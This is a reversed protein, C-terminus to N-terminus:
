ASAVIGNLVALIILLAFVALMTFAVEVIIM